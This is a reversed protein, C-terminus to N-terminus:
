GVGSSVLTGYWTTGSDYTVFNYWSPSAYTPAAASDWDVSAPFTPTFAGSLILVFGHGTSAPTPFTFTCNQDMTMRQIDASTLTETSGTSAVTNVTLRGGYLTNLGIALEDATIAKTAAASADVVPLEDGTALNAGTLNTLASIKTDAM